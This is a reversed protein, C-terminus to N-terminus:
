MRGARGDPADFTLRPSTPAGDAPALARTAEHSLLAAISTPAAAWSSFILRKTTTTPDVKAYAGGPGHYPMSPPM